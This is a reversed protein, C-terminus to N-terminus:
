ALMQSAHRQWQGARERALDVGHRAYAQARELWEGAMESAEASQHTGAYPRRCFALRAPTHPMQFCAFACAVAAATFFWFCDRFEDVTIGVFLSAYGAGTGARARHPQGGGGGGGGDGGSKNNNAGEGKGVLPEDVKKEADKADGTAPVVEWGVLRYFWGKCRGWLVALLPLLGWIPVCVPGICIVFGGKGM